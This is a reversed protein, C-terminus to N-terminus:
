SLPKFGAVKVRLSGKATATTIEVQTPTGAYGALQTREPETLGTLDLEIETAGDKLCLENANATCTV